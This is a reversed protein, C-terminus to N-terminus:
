SGPKEVKAGAPSVVNWEGGFADVGEGNTQGKRTDKVFRYLPHRKYTVQLRGDARSTTGLLSAKAGAMARPRGAAILPPWFSACKGACRSKGKKDNGFLYLAHGQSDVLIRGLSTSRTSVVPRKAQAAEGAAARVLLLSLAAFVALAAATAFLRRPREVAAAAKPHNNSLM